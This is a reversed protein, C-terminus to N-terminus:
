SGFFPNHYNQNWTYTQLPLFHYHKFFPNWSTTSSFFLLQMQSNNGYFLLSFSGPAWNISHTYAHWTACCYNGSWLMLELWQKGILIYKFRSLQTWQGNCYAFDICSKWPASTQRRLLFRFHSYLSTSIPDLLAPQHISGAVCNERCCWTGNM